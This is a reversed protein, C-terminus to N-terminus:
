ASQKNKGGEKAGSSQTNGQPAPTTKKGERTKAPQGGSSTQKTPSNKSVIHRRSILSTPPCDAYGDAV